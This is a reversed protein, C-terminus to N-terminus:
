PLDEDLVHATPIQSYELSGSKTMGNKCQFYFASYAMFQFMSIVGILLTQIAVVVIPMAPSLKSGVVIILVLVLFFFLNLLFGHVRKGKVLEKAKGLASYGYTDEVVSVVIGLSWVVSLYISLGIFLIALIILITILITRHDFLVLSPVLFPFLFFFEYGIALFQVWISTVLPRTWTKSVKLILEKLSLEYGTYYCSSIIIVATQAFLAVFFFLVVYAAEIGIFIGIDERIDVLIANFEPTGPQSSALSFIKFSLDLIYPNASLTLLILAIFYLILYITATIAMLKGNQSLIKLPAKVLDLFGSLKNM